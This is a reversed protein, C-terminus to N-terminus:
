AHYNFDGRFAAAAAHEDSADPIQWIVINWCEESFQCSVAKRKIQVCFIYTLRGTM